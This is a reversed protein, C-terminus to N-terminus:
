SFVMMRDPCLKMLEVRAQSYCDEIELADIYDLLDVNNQHEMAKLIKFM